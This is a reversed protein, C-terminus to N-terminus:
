QESGVASRLVTQNVKAGLQTQLGSVYQTFLDEALAADLRPLLAAMEPSKADLPSTTADTVKFVTRGGKDALAVGAAGVPAGFIQNVAAETLGAGGSRKLGQAQQPKVGNAAALDSLKEGADIERWRM